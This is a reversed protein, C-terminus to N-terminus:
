WNYTSESTSKMGYQDTVTLSITYLMPTEPFTVRAMRGKLSFELDDTIPNFDDDYRIAWDWSMIEGGENPHESLSGDLVPISIYTSTSSDWETLTKIVFLSTPPLFRKEFSNGYSTSVEIKLPSSISIDKDGGYFHIDPWFKIEVMESSNLREWGSLYDTNNEWDFGTKRISFEEVVFDNVTIMAIRSIESHLSSIRITINYWESGDKKPYMLVSHIGLKENENRDQIRENRQLDEQKDAIFIAFSTAAVVVVLVLMLAGVVESVGARDDHMYKM